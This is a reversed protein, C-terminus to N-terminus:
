KVTVSIEEPYIKLLHVGNPLTCKLKIKANGKTGDPIDAVVHVDNKRVDAKEGDDALVLISATRHSVKLLKQSTLFRIKLNNLSLNAKTPKIVFKL